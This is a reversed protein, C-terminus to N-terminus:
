EGRWGPVGCGGPAVQVLVRLGAIFLVLRGLVDGVLELLEADLDLGTHGQQQQHRARSLPGHAIADPGTRRM